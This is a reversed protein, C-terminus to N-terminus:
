VEKTRSRKPTWIVLRGCVPCKTQRHTKSMREAWHHWHLYRDPSPTHADSNPCVEGKRIKPAM